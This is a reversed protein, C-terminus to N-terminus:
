QPCPPASVPLQSPSADAYSRAPLPPRRLPFAGAAMGLRPRAVGLRPMLTLVRQPHPGLAISFLQDIFFSKTGRRITVAAINAYAGIMMAFALNSDVINRRCFIMYKWTGDHNAINVAMAIEAIPPIQYMKLVSLRPSSNAPARASIAIRNPAM